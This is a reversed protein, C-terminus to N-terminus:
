AKLLAPMSWLAARYSLPGLGMIVGACVPAILDRRRFGERAQINSLHVEIVPGPFAAVADRLSVSTHTLGGPNLIVGDASGRADRLADILGGEHNTQVHDLALGLGAAEQELLRLLDKLTARGYIEPEREGLLDLNPGNLVLVRKM